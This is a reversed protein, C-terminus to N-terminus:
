KTSELYDGWVAAADYGKALVPPPPFLGAPPPPPEIEGALWREFANHHAAHWARGVERWTAWEALKDAPMDLLIRAMPPMADEVARIARSISAVTM